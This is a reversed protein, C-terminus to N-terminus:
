DSTWRSFGSFVMQKSLKLVKLGYYVWRLTRVIFDFRYNKHAGFFRLNGHFCEIIDSAKFDGKSVKLDKPDQISHNPNCGSPWGFVDLFWILFLFCFTEGFNVVFKQLKVFRM